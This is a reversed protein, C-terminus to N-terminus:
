GLDQLGCWHLRDRLSAEVRQDIIGLVQSGIL